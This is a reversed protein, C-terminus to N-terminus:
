VSGGRSVSRGGGHRYAPRVELAHERARDEAKVDGIKEVKEVRLDVDRGTAECRDRDDVTQDAAQQESRREPKKPGQANAEKPFRFRVAAKPWMAEPKDNQGCEEGGRDVPHVQLHEPDVEGEARH